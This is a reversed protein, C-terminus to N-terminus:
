RRERPRWEEWWFRSMEALIKLIIGPKALTSRGARRPFYPVAMEVVRMGALKARALLEADIFSGESTLNFDRIAKKTFLKFSFNVDRVGLGFVVNVLRNYVVSYVTRWWSDGRDTRYGTVGDAGDRVLLEAGRPVDRFDIPLDADTYFVLEKAAAEFGTRLTRGLKYNRDHHIVSVEAYQAALEDALEPTRDSSGDDVIVIEFDDFHRRLVERAREVSAAVNAEENFTPFIVSLTPKGNEPRNAMIM